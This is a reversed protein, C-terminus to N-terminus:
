IYLTDKFLVGNIDIHIELKNGDVYINKIAEIIQEKSYTKNIKIQAVQKKKQQLQNIKNNITNYNNTIEKITNNLKSIEEDLEGAKNKYTTNDITNDLLRDLLVQKRQKVKYLKQQVTDLDLQSYSSINEHLARIKHTIGQIQTLKQRLVLGNIYDQTVLNLIKDESLNRDLLTSLGIMFSDMANDMTATSKGDELYEVIVGVKKLMNLIQLLYMDRGLRSTNKVLITKYQVEKTRDITLIDYKPVYVLSCKEMLELFKPRQISTGSFGHDIYLDYVLGHEMCYNILLSQQTSISNAQDDNQTSVRCYLAVRQEM